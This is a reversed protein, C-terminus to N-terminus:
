QQMAEIDQQIDDHGPQMWQKAAMYVQQAGVM